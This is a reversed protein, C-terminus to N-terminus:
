TYWGTAKLYTKLDDYFNEHTGILFFDISLPQTDDHEAPVVEPVAYSMLYEQRKFTFKHVRIGVLDGVKAEGIEPDDCVALANDRIAVQFPKHQKKVFSIFPRKYEPKFKM